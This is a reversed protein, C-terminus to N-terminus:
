SLIGSLEAATYVLLLSLFANVAKRFADNKLSQKIAAGFLAWTSTALFGVFAFLVASVSLWGIRGKIPVLFTSYLTLGYVAVKPNFLQLAFGKSFARVPEDPRASGPDARLIQVALWLIYGAGIWRLASEAFPFLSLLLSSLCACTVMVVFFGASIGLLYNVTRRYGYLIGMSASSINNPGPTFSTVIVFSILPIMEIAM